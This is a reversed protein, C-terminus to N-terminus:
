APRRWPVFLDYWHGAVEYGVQVSEGSVLDRYVKRASKRNHYRMLDARPHAASVTVYDGYQDRALLWTPRSICKDPGM